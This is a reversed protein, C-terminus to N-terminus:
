GTRKKGKAARIINLLTKLQGQLQKQEEPPILFGPIPEALLVPRNGPVPINNETATLMHLITNMNGWPRGQDLHEICQMIVTNLTLFLPEIEASGSDQCKIRSGFSRCMFSRMPYISCCNERLFVCPSLNWPSDEKDINKERLCDLAFRNTTTSPTSSNEPLNNLVPLLEPKDNRIFAYILEGELTTMTVSQTCCTACGKECAIDFGKAWQRYHDYINLLAKHSAATQEFM